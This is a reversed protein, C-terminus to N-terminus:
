AEGATREKKEEINRFIMKNWRVLKPKLRSLAEVVENKGNWARALFARFDPHLFRAGEFRFPRRHRNQSTSPDLNLLLPTHNSAFKPLHRVHPIIVVSGWISWLLIMLSARSEDSDPHLGDSGGIRETSSFICNFDGIIFLPDSVLNIDNRLDLWFRRWRHVMPPGCAFIFEAHMNGKKAAVRILYDSQTLVQTDVVNGDWLISNPFRAKLKQCVEYAHSGSIKTEMFVLLDVSYHRSIYKITRTFGGKGAERPADAEMLEGGDLSTDTAQTAHSTTVM